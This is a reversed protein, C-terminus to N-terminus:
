SREKNGEATFMEGRALLQNENHESETSLNSSRYRVSGSDGKRQQGSLFTWLTILMIRLKVIHISEGHLAM